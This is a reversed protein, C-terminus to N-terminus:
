VQKDNKSKGHKTYSDEAKHKERKMTREARCLMLYEQKSAVLGFRKTQYM